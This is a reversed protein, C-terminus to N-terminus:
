HQNGPQFKPRLAASVDIGESMEKIKTINELGMYDQRNTNLSISEVMLALSKPDATTQNTFSFLNGVIPGIVPFSLEGTVTPNDGGYLNRLCNDMQTKMLDIKSSEINNEKASDVIKQKFEDPRLEKLKRSPDLVRTMMALLMFQATLKDDLKSDPQLKEDSKLVDITKKFEDDKGMILATICAMLKKQVNVDKIDDHSLTGHLESAIQKKFENQKERDLKVGKQEMFEFIKELAEELQPATLYPM